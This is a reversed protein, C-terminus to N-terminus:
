EYDEEGRYVREMHQNAKYATVVRLVGPRPAIIVLVIRKNRSRGILLVRRQGRIWGVYRTIRNPDSVAEEAQSPRVHNDAIHEINAADWEFRM